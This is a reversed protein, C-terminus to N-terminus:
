AILAEAHCVTVVKANVLLYQIMQIIPDDDDDDDDDYLGLLKYPMALVSIACHVYTNWFDVPYFKFAIYSLLDAFM